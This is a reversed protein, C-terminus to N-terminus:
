SPEQYAATCQSSEAHIPPSFPVYIRVVNQETNPFTTTGLYHSNSASEVFIWWAQLITGTLSM